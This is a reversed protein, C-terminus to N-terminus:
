PILAFVSQGMNVIIPTFELAGSPYAIWAGSIAVM